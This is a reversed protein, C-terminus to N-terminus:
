APNRAGGFAPPRAFRFAVAGAGEGAAAPLGAVAVIRGGSVAAAAGALAAAPLPAPVGAALLARARAEGLAEVGVPGDARASLAVRFRGDWTAEEGPDLTLVPLPRRGTERHVLVGAGAPRVLCGALTRPRSLGAALARDLRELAALRPGHEAGGVFALIRSSLRLRVEEAAARFADGTDLAVAGAPDVAVARDALAAVDADIAAAARALRAATAALTAAGIGEAELLSLLRRTRVREFRPDDNSPDELPVIGEAGLVARLTARRVGLLPRVLRVDEMCGDPAIGALGALGSGRRLRMLVTEAQDELTHATLLADAGEARVLSLLLRYRERRAFAQLGSAPPPATVRLTRHPLGRRAALAAVAAAEDAAEPRLGHDVTAVIAEPAAPAARRFRDFLVLLAASDGGGSVALVIRRCDAVPAFLSEPPPLPEGPRQGPAPALPEGEM